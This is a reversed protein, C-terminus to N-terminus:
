ESKIHVILEILTILYILPSEYSDHKISSLNEYRLEYDIHEYM